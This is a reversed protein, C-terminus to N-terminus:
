RRGVGIYLKNSSKIQAPEYMNVCDVVVDATLSEERFEDWDTAIVVIDCGTQCDTANTFLEISDHIITSAEENAKPDFANVLAGKEKLLNAIRIGPSKRVDSTGAKFALGLVAVKKNSLNGLQNEIKEVIYEPMSQNLERAARMIDMNVGFDQSASILGNVDKPFCGGGYGRGANLFARGIRADAGVADMVEVIDANSADALKAISNAFSIKLALFANATVKTLEASEIEMNHTSPAKLERIKQNAIKAISERQNSIEDFLDAIKQKSGDDSGGVVIRDPEISDIIATGERLFEPASVYDFSKDSLQKFREIIRRGTGVPVTSKQVYIIPNKTNQAISELAQFVYELNPSGDANDPTGVASIVIDSQTISDQYSGTPILNGSAIGYEVLSDLGAEYFPAKGSLLKDVKAQDIDLAFTKVGIAALLAATTTGVYGSGVVTVTHNKSM